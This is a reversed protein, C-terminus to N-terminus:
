PPWVLDKSISMHIINGYEWTKKAPFTDGRRLIRAEIVEATQWLLVVVTVLNTGTLIMQTDANSVASLLLLCSAVPEEPVPLCARSVVWHVQHNENAPFAGSIAGSDQDLSGQKLRQNLSCKPWLLHYIMSANSQCDEEWVRLSM